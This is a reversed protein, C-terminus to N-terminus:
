NISMLFKWEKYLFDLMENEEQIKDLCYDSM